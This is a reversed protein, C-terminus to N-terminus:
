MKGYYFIIFGDNKKSSTPGNSTLQRFTNEYDDETRYYIYKTSNLSRSTRIKANDVFIGNKKKQNLVDYM